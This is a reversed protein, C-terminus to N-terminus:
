QNIEGDFARSLVGFMRGDGHFDLIGAAIVLSMMWIYAIM